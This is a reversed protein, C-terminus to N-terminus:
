GYNEDLKRLTNIVGNDISTKPVWSTFKKIKKIDSYFGKLKKTAINPYPIDKKYYSYILNAIYGVSTLKGSGINYIGSPANNDLLEMIGNAVDDVYVFDNSAYPTKIYNNKNLKLNNWISPILSSNRQNPGYSFFIRAWKFNINNTKCIIDLYNLITLKTIGFIQPDKPILNERLSGIHSGYEYCSGTFIINSIGIKCLFDLFILNKNLNIRCKEFSYDPLGEWAMHICYDPAFSIVKKEWYNPKSFDGKIFEINKYGINEKNERSLSLVQHKETLFNILSKGIFGNLGTILIKM